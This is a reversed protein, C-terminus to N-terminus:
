LPFRLLNYRLTYRVQVSLAFTKALVDIKLEHIKLSLGDIVKDVFGYRGGSSYTPVQPSDLSDLFVFISYFQTVKLSLHTCSASRIQLWAPLELLEMFVDEDLEINEM